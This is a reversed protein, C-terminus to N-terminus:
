KNIQRHLHLILFEYGRILMRSCGLSLEGFPVVKGMKTVNKM